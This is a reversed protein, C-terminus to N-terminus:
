EVQIPTAERTKGRGTVRYANGSRGCVTGNSVAGLAIDVAIIASQATLTSCDRVTAPAPPQGNDPQVLVRISTGKRSEKGYKGGSRDYWWEHLTEVAKHMGNSLPLSEADVPTTNDAIYHLLDGAPEFWEGHVRYAAFRAMIRSEQALDGNMTGLVQLPVPCQNQLSAFRYAFDKTIGIKILGGIESQLFYITKQGNNSTKSM